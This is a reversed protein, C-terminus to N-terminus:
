RVSSGSSSACSSRLTTVCRGAVAGGSLMGPDTHHCATAEAEKLRQHEMADQLQMIQAIDINEDGMSDLFSSQPPSVPSTAASREAQSIKKASYKGTEPDWVIPM